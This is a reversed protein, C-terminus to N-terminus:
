EDDTEKKVPAPKKKATAAADRADQQKLLEDYWVTGGKRRVDDDSACDVRRERIIEHEEYKGDTGKVSRMTVTRLVIGGDKRVLTMNDALHRPNNDNLSSVARNKDSVVKTGTPM